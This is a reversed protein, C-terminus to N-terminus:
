SFTSSAACSSSSRSCTCKSETIDTCNESLMRETRRKCILIKSISTEDLTLVHLLLCMHVMSVTGRLGVLQQAGLLAEFIEFFANRLGVLMVLALHLGRDRAHTGTGSTFNCKNHRHQLQEGQTLMQQRHLLLTVAISGLSCCPSCTHLLHLVLAVVLHTVLLNLYLHRAITRTNTARRGERM